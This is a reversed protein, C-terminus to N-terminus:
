PLTGSRCSSLPPSDDLWNRHNVATLILSYNKINKKIKPSRNCLYEALVFLYGEFFTKPFESNKEELWFWVERYSKPRNHNQRSTEM